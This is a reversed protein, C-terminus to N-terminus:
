AISRRIEDSVVAAIQSSLSAVIHRRFGEEDKHELYAPVTVDCGLVQGNIMVELRYTEDEAWRQRVQYAPGGPYDSNATFVQRRVKEWKRIPIRVRPEAYYARERIGM